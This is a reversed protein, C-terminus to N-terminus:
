PAVEAAIASVQERFALPNTLATRMEGLLQRVDQDRKTWGRGFTASAYIRFQARGEQNALGLRAM